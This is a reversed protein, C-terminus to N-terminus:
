GGDRVLPRRPIAADQPARDGVENVRSRTRVTAARPPASTKGYLESVLARATEFPMQHGHAIRQILDIATLAQQERALETTVTQTVLERMARRADAIEATVDASLTVSTYTVLADLLGGPLPVVDRWGTFTAAAAVLAEYERAQEAAADDPLFAPAPRRLVGVVRELERHTATQVLREGFRTVAYDVMGSAWATPNPFLAALQRTLTGPTLATVVRVALDLQGEILGIRHSPRTEDHVQLGRPLVLWETGDGKVVTRGGDLVRLRSTALTLELAFEGPSLSMLGVISADVWVM